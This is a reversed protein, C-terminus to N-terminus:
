GCEIEIDGPDTDPDVIAYIPGYPKANATLRDGLDGLGRDWYGAGHGSRTLLFNHGFDAAAASESCDNLSVVRQVFEDFDAVNSSIFAWVEANITTQADVAFDTLSVPAYDQHAGEVSEGNSDVANAWLLAEIFGRVAHRVEEGDPQIERTNTM